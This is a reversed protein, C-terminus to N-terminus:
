QDEEQFHNSDLFLVASRRRCCLRHAVSLLSTELDWLNCYSHFSVQSSAANNLVFACWNRNAKIYLTHKTHTIFSHVQKPKQIWRLLLALRLPLQPRSLQPRSLQLRSLQQHSLQLHSLQLHVHSRHQAQNARQFRKLHSSQLRFLPVPLDFDLTLFTLTLKITLFEVHQVDLFRSIDNGATRCHSM